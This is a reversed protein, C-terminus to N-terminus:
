LLSWVAAFLAFFTIGVLDRDMATFVVGPLLVVGLGVVGAAGLVVRYVLPPRITLVAAHEWAPAWRRRLAAGLQAARVGLSRATVVTIRRRWPRVVALAPPTSAPHVGPTRSSSFPRACASATAALNAGTGSVATTLLGSSRQWSVAAATTAPRFSSSRDSSRRPSARYPSQVPRAILSRALCGSQFTTWCCGEAATNGPGSPSPSACVWARATAATRSHFAFSPGSATHSAQLWPSTMLAIRASASPRCRSWNWRITTSGADM